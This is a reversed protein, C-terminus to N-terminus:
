SGAFFYFASGSGTPGSLPRFQPVEIWIFDRAPAPADNSRKTKRGEPDPKRRIVIIVMQAIKQPPSTSAGIRAEDLLDDLRPGDRSFSNRLAPHGKRGM